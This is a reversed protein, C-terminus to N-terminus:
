VYSRGPLRKISASFLFEFWAQELTNALDLPDYCFLDVKRPTPPLSRDNTIASLFLATSAVFVSSFCIFDSM